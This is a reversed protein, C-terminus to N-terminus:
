GRGVVERGQVVIRLVPVVVIAVVLCCGYHMVGVAGVERGEVVIIIVLVSM